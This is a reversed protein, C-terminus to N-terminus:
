ERSEKEEELHVRREKETDKGKRGKRERERKREREMRWNGEKGKKGRRKEVMKRKKGEKKNKQKFNIVISFNALQPFAEKILSDQSKHDSDAPSDIKFFYISLIINITFDYIM